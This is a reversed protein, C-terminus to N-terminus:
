DKAIRVKDGNNVEDAAASVVADGPQLRDAVVVVDGGSVPGLQVGVFAAKGDRVSVVHQGAGTAVVAHKPVLKVDKLVGTAVRARAFMNPRLSRDPNAIAIRVKFTRAAVDASPVISRVSGTWVRDPFADVRATVALGPRVQTVDKESVDAELYVTGLDVITLLPSGPGAWQGPETSRGIISGNRPAVVRHNLVNQRAIALAARAASVAARATQVGARAARIDERRTLNTDVSALAAALNERAQQVAIEAQRVEETRAGEEVLSRAEIASRHAEKQITLATRYTELTAASVAGSDYLNKYRDYDSQAKDLNAKAIAVANDAQAREQRRAGNRVMELRTEAARLGARAQEVANATQADGVRAGTQAQALRAEATRLGAMAQEVGAQAQEMQRRADADDLQVVVQGASVTDGPRGAVSLVKGSVKPALTVVSDAALQGTLELSETVNGLRVPSVIVPIGDRAQETQQTVPPPVPPRKMTFWYAGGALLAFIFLLIAKQRM